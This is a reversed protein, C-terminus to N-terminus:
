CRASDMGDKIQNKSPGEVDFPGFDDITAAVHRFGVPSDGLLM